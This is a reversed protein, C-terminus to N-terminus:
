RDWPDAAPPPQALGWCACTCGNALRGYESLQSCWDLMDLCRVDNGFLELTETEPDCAVENTESEVENIAVDGSGVLEVSRFVSPIDEPPTGLVASSKSTSYRSTADPNHESMATTASGRYSSTSDIHEYTLVFRTGDWEYHLQPEEEPLAPSELMLAPLLAHWVLLGLVVLALFNVRRFRRCPKNGVDKQAAGTNGKIEVTGIM